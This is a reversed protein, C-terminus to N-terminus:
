EEGDEGSFLFYTGDVVLETNIMEKEPNIIEVWGKQTVGTVIEKQLFGNENKVFIISKDSHYIIANEPLCYAEREDLLITAKIFMGPHLINDKNEFKCIAKASRSGTDIQMGVNQIKTFLQNEQNQVPYFVVKQGSKLHILDKEFVQLVVQLNTPNIIECISNTTEVFMGTNVNLNSVYGSIPAIRAFSRAFNEKELKEANIGLMELQTKASKFAAQATWYDAQAKQMNKLSAANEVTLEGQRKFEQEFFTVQSKSELYQQQLSIFDPHSLSVLVSGAKVFDGEKVFVEQIFGNMVPTITAKDNPMLDIIGSCEVTESIIQKEPKSTKIGAIKIQEPTLQITNENVKEDEVSEIETNQTKCAGILLAAILIFVLNRM